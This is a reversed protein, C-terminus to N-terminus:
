LTVKTERRYNFLMNAEMLVEVIGAGIYNDSATLKKCPETVTRSEFLQSSERFNSTGVIPNSGVDEMWNRKVAEYVAAIRPYFIVHKQSKDEGDQASLTKLKM